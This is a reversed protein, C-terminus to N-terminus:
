MFQLPFCKHLSWRSSPRKPIIKPLAEGEMSKLPLPAACVKNLTSNIYAARKSIPYAGGALDGQQFYSQKPRELLATGGGGGYM